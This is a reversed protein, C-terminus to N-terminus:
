IYKWLKSRFSMQVTYEQNNESAKLEQYKNSFHIRMSKKDSTCYQYLNYIYERRMLMNKMMKIMWISKIWEKVEKLTMSPKMMNLYRMIDVIQTKIGHNEKLYSMIWEFSFGIEYKEYIIMNYLSDIMISIKISHKKKKMKTDNNNDNIMSEEIKSILLKM